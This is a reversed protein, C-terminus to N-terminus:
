SHENRDGISPVRLVPINVTLLKRVLIWSLSFDADPCITLPNQSEAGLDIQLTRRCGPEAFGLGNHFLQILLGVRWREM